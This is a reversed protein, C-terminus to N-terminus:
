HGICTERNTVRKIFQCNMCLTQYGTPYGQKKLWNYFSWGLKPKVEKRHQNGGGVIHDITLARVDKFGCTVCSLKGNSYYTLAALKIQLRRKIGRLRIRDRNEKYYQRSKIRACVKCRSQLYKRGEVYFESIPKVQGCQTCRKSTKLRARM